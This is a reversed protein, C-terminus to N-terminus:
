RTCMRPLILKYLAVHALGQEVFLDPLGLGLAQSDGYVLKKPVKQCIHSANLGVSHVPAILSTCEEQTLTLTPLPYMLTKMITSTVCQWAERHPIHGCKINDCWQRVKKKMATLQETQSGDLALYVGLTERGESAPVQELTTM